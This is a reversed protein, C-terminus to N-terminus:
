RRTLTRQSEAGEVYAELLRSRLDDPKRLSWQGLGDYIRRAEAVNGLHLNAIVGGDRLEDAPIWQAVRDALPLLRSAAEAAEAFQWAAIGHRFRVVDRAAEPAGHRDLFGYMTRYLQEDAAGATGGNLARDVDHAQKVWM